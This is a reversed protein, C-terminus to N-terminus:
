KSAKGRKVGALYIEFLKKKGTSKVANAYKENKIFKEFAIEEPTRKVCEVTKKM